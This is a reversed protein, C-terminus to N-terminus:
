DPATHARSRPRHAMYLCIALWFCRPSSKPALRPPGASGYTVAPGIRQVSSSIRRQMSQPVRMITAPCSTLSVLGPKIVKRHLRQPRDSFYIQSSHPEAIATELRRAKKKAKTSGPSRAKWKRGRTKLRSLSWRSLFDLPGDGNAGDKFTWLSLGWLLEPNTIQSGEAEWLRAFPSPCM